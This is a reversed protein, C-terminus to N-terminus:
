APGLVPPTAGVVSAPIEPKVEAMKDLAEAGGIVHYRDAVEGRQHPIVRLRQGPLPSIESSESSM